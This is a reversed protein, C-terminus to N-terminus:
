SHSYDEEPAARRHASPKSPPMPALHQIAEHLAKLQTEVEALVDAETQILEYVTLTRQKFGKPFTMIPNLALVEAAIGGAFDVGTQGGSIVLKLAPHHKQVLRLVEFMWLNLKDQTWGHDKLTYIGNGAINLTQVNRDRCAKFLKRAAEVPSLKLAIDIYKEGALDKTLIEGRSDFEEAFAVTLDASKANHATRPPYAASKHEIVKM